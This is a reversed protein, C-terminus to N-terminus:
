DIDVHRMFEERQRSRIRANAMEIASRAHTDADGAVCGAPEIVSRLLMRDPSAEVEVEADAHGAVSAANALASTSALESEASSGNRASAGIM